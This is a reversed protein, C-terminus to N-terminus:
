SREIEAELRKVEARARALKSEIAARRDRSWAARAPARPPPAARGLARAAVITAPDLGCEPCALGGLFAAHVTRHEMHSTREVAHGCYLRLRWRVLEHAPKEPWRSMMELVRAITAAVAPPPETGLCPGSEEVYGGDARGPFAQRGPHEHGPEDADHTHSSYSGASEGSTFQHFHSRRAADRIAVAQEQARADRKNAVFPADPDGRAEYGDM